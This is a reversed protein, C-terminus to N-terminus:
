PLSKKVGSRLLDLMHKLGRERVPAVPSLRRRFGYTATEIWAGERSRGNSCAAEALFAATEIWAGERSRRIYINERGAEKTTEIWAGERSRRYATPFLEQLM